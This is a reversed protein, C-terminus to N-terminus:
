FITWGNLVGDVFIGIDLVCMGLVNGVACGDVFPCGPLRLRVVGLWSSVFVSGSHGGLSFVGCVVGKHRKSHHGSVTVGVHM